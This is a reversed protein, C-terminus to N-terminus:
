RKWGRKRKKGKGDRLAHELRRVIEKAPSGPVLPLRQFHRLVAIPSPMQAALGADLEAYIAAEREHLERGLATLFEAENVNREMRDARLRASVGPPLPVRGARLEAVQRRIFSVTVRKKRNRRWNPPPILLEIGADEIRKEMEALLATLKEEAVQYPDKM